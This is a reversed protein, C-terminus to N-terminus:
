YKPREAQGVVLGLVVASVLLVQVRGLSIKRKTNYPMRVLAVCVILTLWVGGALDGSIVLKSCICRYRVRCGGRSATPPIGETVPPRSLTFSQRYRM